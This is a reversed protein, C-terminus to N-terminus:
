YREGPLPFPAPGPTLPVIPGYGGGFDQGSARRNQGRNVHYAQNSQDFGGTSQVVHTKPNERTYTDTVEHHTHTVRGGDTSQEYFSPGVTTRGSQGNEDTFYDSSRDFVQALQIHNNSFIDARTTSGLTVVAENAMLAQLEVSGSVNEVTRIAVTGEPVGVSVNAFAPVSVLAAILATSLVKM